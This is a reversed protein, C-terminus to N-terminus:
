TIAGLSHKLEIIDPESILLQDQAQRALEYREGNYKM